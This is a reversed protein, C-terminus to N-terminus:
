RYKEPLRTGYLGEDYLFANIARAIRGAPYCVAEDGNVNEYPWRTSSRRSWFFGAHVSEHTVIEMSLHGHVLGVICVYRPDVGRYTAGSASEVSWGLDNVFGFAASGVEWELAGKSFKRMAMRSRFVLLKVRLRGSRGTPGRVAIDHEALVTGVAAPHGAFNRPIPQVHRKAKVHLVKERM